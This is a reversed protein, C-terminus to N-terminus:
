NRFTKNAWAIFQEVSLVRITKTSSPPRYRGEKVAQRIWNIAGPKAGSGGYVIFIDQEPMAELANLYVYPFKEDVSGGSQQWKCEIRITLHHSASLLLFETKGAHGYITTYPVNRVLLEDTLFLDPGSRYRTYPMVEFGNDELVRMILHELTSGSQNAYGGANKPRTM